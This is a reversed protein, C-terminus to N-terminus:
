CIGLCIKSYNATEEAAVFIAAAIASHDDAPQGELIKWSILFIIRSVLILLCFSYVLIIQENRWRQKDILLWKCNYAWFMLTGVYLSEDTWGVSNLWTIESATLECTSM